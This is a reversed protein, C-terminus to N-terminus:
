PEIVFSSNATISGVFVSLLLKHERSVNEFSFGIRGEGTDNGIRHRLKAVIDLRIDVDDYKVPFVLDFLSGVGGLFEPSAIMAGDVSLDVISVELPKNQGYASITAPLATKLRMSKRVQKALVVEPYAFLAHAFPAKFVNLAPATFSFDTQGTFGQVLYADGVVIDTKHSDMGSPALMVGKGEIAAIFKAGTAPGDDGMRRIDLVIGPRLRLTKLGVELADGGNLEDPM